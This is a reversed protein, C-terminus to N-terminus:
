APTGKLAAEVAIERMTLPGKKVEKKGDLFREVRESCNFPNEHIAGGTLRVIGYGAKRMFADRKKDRQHQATTASHFAYGDCEVVVRRGKATVLFDARYNGIEFQPQITKGDPRDWMLMLPTVMLQEIPSECRDMIAAWKEIMAQCNANFLEQDFGYAVFLRSVFNDVLRKNHEPSVPWEIKSM